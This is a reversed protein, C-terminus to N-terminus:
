AHELKRKSVLIASFLWLVTNKALNATHMADHLVRAFLGFVMGLLILCILEDKCVLIKKWGESTVTWLFMIFFGVGPLGTESALLLFVDHVRNVKGREDQNEVYTEYLDKTADYNNLGIGIFPHAAVMSTASRFQALRSVTSGKDDEFMRAKIVPMGFILIVSLAAVTVLVPVPQLRKRGRSVLWAFVGICALAGGIWASRSFSLILAVMGLFFVGAMFLRAGRGLKALNLGFALPLVSAIYGGLYNPNGLTGGVRFVKNASIEVEKAVKSEGLVELGLNDGVHYQALAILCEVALGAMMCRAALWLDDRTRINNAFYFFYLFAKVFGVLMFASALPQRANILSLAGWGIMSLLITAGPPWLGVELRREALVRFFWIVYLLVLLIDLASFGLEETGSSVELFHWHFDANVPIAFFFVCLLYREFQGSAVGVWIFALGALISVLWKKELHYPAWVLAVAMFFAILVPVLRLSMRNESLSPTSSHM